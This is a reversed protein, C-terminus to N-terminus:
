NKKAMPTATVAKAMLKGGSEVYSVKVREGPKLQALTSAAEPELTFTAEKTTHGTVRKVTLTSAAQDVSVVEATMHRTPAAKTPGPEAGGGKTAPAALTAGPAGLALATLVATSLVLLKKM